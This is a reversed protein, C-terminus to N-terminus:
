HLRDWKDQNDNFLVIEMLLKKIISNAFNQKINREYVKQDYNDNTNTMNSTDTFSIIKENNKNKIKVNTILETRFELIKGSKNKSLAKKSYDLNISIYYIKKNSNQYKKLELNIFKIIDNDGKADTVEISFDFNDKPSLMPKFGCATLLILIFISLWFKKKM